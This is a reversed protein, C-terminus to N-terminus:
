NGGQEKKWAAIVESATALAMRGLPVGCYIMAHRCAEVVSEESLGNYLAARLHASLEPQRNLAILM